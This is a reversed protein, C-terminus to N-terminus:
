QDHHHGEHDVKDYIDMVDRVLNSYFTIMGVLVGDVNGTPDAKEQQM